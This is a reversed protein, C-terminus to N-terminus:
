NRALQFSGAILYRKRKYIACGLMMLFALVSPWFAMLDASIKNVSIFPEISKQPIIGGCPPPLVVEHKVCALHAIFIENGIPTFSLRDDKDQLCIDLATVLEGYKAHNSLSVNIGNVTDNKDTLQNLASKLYDLEIADEKSNGTLKLVKYKRFTTIDFREGTLSAMRSMEDKTTWAVKIAYYKDFIKNDALYFICMAPLFLLSILAPFYLKRFKPLSM